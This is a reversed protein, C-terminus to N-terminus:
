NWNSFHRSLVKNFWKIPVSKCWVDMKRVKWTAFSSPWPGMLVVFSTFSLTCHGLSSFFLSMSVSPGPGTDRGLWFQKPELRCLKILLLLPLFPQLRLANIFSDKSVTSGPAMHGSARERNKRRQKGRRKAESGWVWTEGMPSSGCNSFAKLRTDEWSQESLPIHESGCSWHLIPEQQGAQALAQGRPTAWGSDPAWGLVLSSPAPLVLSARMRIPHSTWLLAPEGAVVGGNWPTRPFLCHSEPCLVQGNQIRTEEDWWRNKRYHNRRTAVNM